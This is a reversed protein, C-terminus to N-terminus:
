NVRDFHIYSYDFDTNIFKAVDKDFDGQYQLNHITLLTHITFSNLSQHRYHKDLLYPIISTQWDNIHLIDPYFEIIDLSELIAYSFAAFREADDHYCYLGEREFYHMNQVFIY